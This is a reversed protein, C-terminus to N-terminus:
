GRVGIMTTRLTRYTQGPDALMSTIPGCVLNHTYTLTVKVQSGVPAANYGETTDVLPEWTGSTKNLYMLEVGLSTSVLSSASAAACDQIQAVSRGLSAQRCAERCASGLVLDDKLLWGMEIIAFLLFVLLPVVLAMEVSVSGHRSLEPGRRMTRQWGM